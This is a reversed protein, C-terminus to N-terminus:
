LLLGILWPIMLPFDNLPLENRQATSHRPKTEKIRTPEACAGLEIWIGYTLVATPIGVPEVSVYQAPAM